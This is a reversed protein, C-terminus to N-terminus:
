SYLSIMFTLTTPVKRTVFANRENNLFFSVLVMTLMEEPSPDTEPLRLMSGSLGM